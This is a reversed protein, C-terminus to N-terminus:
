MDIQVCLSVLFWSFQLAVLCSVLFFCSAFSGESVLFGLFWCPLLGVGCCVVFFSIFQWVFWFVVLLDVLLVVLRFVLWISFDVKAYFTGCSTHYELLAVLWCCLLCSSCFYAEMGAWSFM